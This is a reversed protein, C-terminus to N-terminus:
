SLGYKQLTATLAADFERDIYDNSKMTTGVSITDFAFPESGRFFLTLNGVQVRVHNHENTLRVPPKPM